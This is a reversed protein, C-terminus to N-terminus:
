QGTASEAITIVGSETIWDDADEETNRVAVPYYYEGQPEAEPAHLLVEITVDPQPSKWEWIPPKSKRTVPPSPSINGYEIGWDVAPPSVKAETVNSVLVTVKARDGPTTSANEAEIRPSQTM